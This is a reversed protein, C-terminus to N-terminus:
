LRKLHYFLEPEQHLLGSFLWHPLPIYLVQASQEVPPTPSTSPTPSDPDDQIAKEFSVFFRVRPKTRPKAILPEGTRPNRAKREGLEKPYFVGFDAIKVENGARLEMELFKIFGGLVSEVTTGSFGTIQEIYTTDLM